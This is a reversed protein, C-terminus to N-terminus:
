MLKRESRKNPRIQRFDHNRYVTLVVENDANVLVQIGELAALEPLKHGLRAVEKKGIVYFIARRAHVKRGYTLVLSVQEMSLGRQAMRKYAHHSIATETSLNIAASM